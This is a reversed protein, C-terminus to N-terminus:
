FQIQYGVRALKQGSTINKALWFFIRGKTLPFTAMPGLFPKYEGNQYIAELHLALNQYSLNQEYYYEIGKVPTYENISLLQWDKWYAFFVLALQPKITLNNNGYLFNAGVRATININKTPNIQPGIEWLMYGTGVQVFGQWHKSNHIFTYKPSAGTTSLQFNFINQTKGIFTLCLVGVVFLYNKM